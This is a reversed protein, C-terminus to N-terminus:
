FTVQSVTIIELRLNTTEYNVDEPKLKNELLKVHKKIESEDALIDEGDQTITLCLGTVLRGTINWGKSLLEDWLAIGDHVEDFNGAEYIHQIYNSIDWFAEEENWEDGFYNKALEKFCKHLDVLAELPTSFGSDHQFIFPFLTQQEFHDFYVVVNYIKLDPEGSISGAVIEHKM